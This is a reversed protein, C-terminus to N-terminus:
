VWPCNLTVTTKKSCCFAYFCPDVHEPFTELVISSSLHPSQFYLALGKGLPGCEHGSAEM